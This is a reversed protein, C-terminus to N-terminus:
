EHERSAILKSLMTIQTKGIDVQRRAHQLEAQANVLRQKFMNGMATVEKLNKMLVKMNGKEKGQAHAIPINAIEHPFFNSKLM